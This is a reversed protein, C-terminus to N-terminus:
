GKQVTGGGSREVRISGDLLQRQVSLFELNPPTFRGRHRGLHCERDALAISASVHIKAPKVFIQSLLLQTVIETPKSEDVLHFYDPILVNTENM